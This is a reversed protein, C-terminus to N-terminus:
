TLDEADVLSFANSCLRAVVDAGHCIRCISCWTLNRSAIKMIWDRIQVRVFVPIAAEASDMSDMWDMADKARM